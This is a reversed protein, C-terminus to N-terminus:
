RKMCMVISKRKDVCNAEIDDSTNQPFKELKETRQRLFFMLYFRYFFM